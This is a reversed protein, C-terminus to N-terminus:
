VIQLFEHHTTNDQTFPIKVLFAAKVPELRRGSRDQVPPGVGPRDIELPLISLLKLPENKFM